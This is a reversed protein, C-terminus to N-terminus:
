RGSFLMFMFVLIGSGIMWGIALLIAPVDSVEINLSTLFIAELVLGGIVSLVAKIGSGDGGGSSYNDYESSGLMYGLLFDDDDHM